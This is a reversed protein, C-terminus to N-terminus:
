ALEALEDPTLYEYTDPYGFMSWYPDDDLPDPDRVYDPCSYISVSDVEPYDSMLERHDLDDLFLM